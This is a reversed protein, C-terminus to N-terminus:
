MYAANCETLDNGTEPSHPEIVAITYSQENDYVFSRTENILSYMISRRTLISCSVYDYDLRTGWAKLMGVAAYLYKRFLKM